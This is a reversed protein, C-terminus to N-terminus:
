SRPFYAHRDYEPHGPQCVDMIQEGPIDAAHHIVVGNGNLGLWVGIFDFVLERGSGAAAPTSVDIGAVILSPRGIRRIREFEGDTWLPGFQRVEGGWNSLYRRPWAQALPQRSTVVSVEGFRHKVMHSPEHVAATSLRMVAVDAAAIFGAAVARDVREDLSEETLALLGLKRVDEVEYDLLRTAHYTRLLCGALIERVQDDYQALERAVNHLDSASDLRKIKAKPIGRALRAILDALDAPWTSTDDVDVSDTRTVSSGAGGSSADNM